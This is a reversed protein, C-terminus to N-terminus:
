QVYRYRNGLAGVIKVLVELVFVAIDYISHM